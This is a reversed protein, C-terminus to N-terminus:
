NHHRFRLVGTDEDRNRQLFRNFPHNDPQHLAEWEEELEFFDYLTETEAYLQDVEMESNTYDM